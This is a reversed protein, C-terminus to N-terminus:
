DLAEIIKEKFSEKDLGSIDTFISTISGDVFVMTTPVSEILFKSSLINKYDIAVPFSLNMRDVLKEIKRIEEQDDIDIAAIFLEDHSFEARLSELWPLETLCPRCWSAWFSLVIPTTIKGLDYKVGDISTIQIQKISNSVHKLRHGQATAPKASLDVLDFGVQLVLFCTFVIILLLLNFYKKM